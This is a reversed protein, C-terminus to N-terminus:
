VNKRVVEINRKILQENMVGKICVTIKGPKDLKLLEFIAEIRAFVEDAIVSISRGFETIMFIKVRVAHKKEYVEIADYYDPDIFRSPKEKIPKGKKTCLIVTESMELLDEIIMKEIVGKNVAIAGHENREIISM